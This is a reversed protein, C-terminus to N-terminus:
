YKFRLFVTEGRELAQGVEKRGGYISGRTQNEEIEIPYFTALKEERIFTQGMAQYVDYTFLELPDGISIGNDAGADIIVRTPKKTKGAVVKVLHIPCPFLASLEKNWVAPLADLADLLLKNKQEQIITAEEQPSGPFPYMKVFKWDPNRGYDFVFNRALFNKRGYARTVCKVERSYKLEGTVINTVRLNFSFGGALSYNTRTLMGLTDLADSQSLDDILPEMNLQFIYEPDVEGKNEETSHNIVQFHWHRELSLFAIQQVREVVGPPVDAPFQMPEILVPIKDRSFTDLLQNEQGIAYNAMLCCCFFLLSSGIKKIM